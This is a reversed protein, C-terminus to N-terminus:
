YINNFSGNIDQSKRGGPKLPTYKSLITRNSATKPPLVFENNASQQKKYLYFAAAAAILLVKNNKKKAM